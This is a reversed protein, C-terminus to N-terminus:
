DLIGFHINGGSVFLPRLCGDLVEFLRGSVLGNPQLQVESRQPADLSRSLLEKPADMTTVELACVIQIVGGGPFFWFEMNKEIVRGNRERAAIISNFRGKSVTANQPRRDVM